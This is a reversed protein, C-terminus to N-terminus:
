KNVITAWCCCEDWSCKPCEKASPSHKCEEPLCGCDACKIQFMVKDDSKTTIQNLRLYLDFISCKSM